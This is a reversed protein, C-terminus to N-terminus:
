LIVFFLLNPVIGFWRSFVGPFLSCVTHIIAFYLPPHHDLSMNYFVSGYSFTHNPDAVISNAWFSASLWTNLYSENNQLLFPFYYHNATNFTWIEDIYLNQRECTFFLIVALQVLIILLFYSIYSANKRVAILLQKINM